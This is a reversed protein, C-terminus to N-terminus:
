ELRFTQKNKMAQDFEKFDVHQLAIGAENAFKVISNIALDYNEGTEINYEFSDIFGNLLNKQSEECQAIQEQLEKHKERELKYSEEYIATLRAYEQAELKANKLIERTNTVILSAATYVAVPIIPNVSKGAIAIIAKSYYITATSKITTDILNDKLQEGTIDGRAYSYLAVGGDIIGGAIVTSAMSDSLFNNGAKTASTRITASLAGTTAGYAGSKIVDKCVKGLADSFEEKDNFVQFMNTIGSVISTTVMNAVAMNQATNKIENHVQKKIFQKEYNAPNKHAKKIEELTTGGSTINEYQLEDTLHKEVDLNEERFVRGENTGSKAVEKSKQLLSMSKGTKKDICYNKDKRILRDMGKYKPHRQYAVSSAAATKSDNFKAQVQKVVKGNKVIEIDCADHPRGVADTIVAKSIKGKQASDVNFKAAEIYEFLNGKVQDFGVNHKKFAVDRFLKMGEISSNTASQSNITKSNGVLNGTKRIIDKFM